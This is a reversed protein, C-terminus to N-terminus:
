KKEEPAAVPKTPYKKLTWVQQAISFVNQSAWYLVLGSPFSWFIFLMVAPMIMMMMKQQDSAPSPTLKTQLIMTASMVIPLINIGFGAIHGVTDPRTLDKIWLFSSGTFEVSTSFVDYLAMFVPIQVLTPLCGSLPNVKERKYLAIMEQNLKEPKNKFQQKLNEIKPAVEAMKRMSHTQKHSLPWFILKILLSLILISVGYNRTLKETWILANELPIEILRFFSGGPVFSRKMDEYGVGQAILLDRIKPGAFIRFDTELVAGPSIVRADANRLEVSSRMDVREFRVHYPIGGPRVAWAYYKTESSAFVVPARVEAEEYGTNGRFFSHDLYETNLKGDFVGLYLNDYTTTEPPFYVGRFGIKLNYPNLVIPTKSTNSIALALHIIQDTLAYTKRVVLNEGADGTARATAIIEGRPGDSMQFPLLSLNQGFLVVSAAGENARILPVPDIDRAGLRHVKVERIDGGANVVRLTIDDNSRYSAVIKEEPVGVVPPPPAPASEAAPAVRQPGAGPARNTASVTTTAPRTPPPPVIFKQWLILVLVSLAVALITRKDM